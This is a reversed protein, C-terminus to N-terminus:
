PHVVSLLHHCATPLRMPQRATATICRCAMDPVIAGWEVTGMDEAPLLAQGQVLPFYPGPRRNERWRVWVTGAQLSRLLANPPQPPSFTGKIPQTAHVLTGTPLYWLAPVWCDLLPQAEEADWKWGSAPPAVPVTGTQLFPCGLRDPQRQFIAALSLGEVAPAVPLGGKPRRWLFDQDVPWTHLDRSIDETNGAPSGEPTLHSM